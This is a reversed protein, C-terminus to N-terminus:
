SYYEDLWKTLDGVTPYDLFLSGNVKVDLELRFKEALVLSMLSDIGLNCFEAGEELDALDLASERAILDLAKTAVTERGSSPTAVGESSTSTSVSTISPPTDAVITTDIPEVSKSKVQAKETKTTQPEDFGSDSGDSETSWSAQKQKTVPTPLISSKKSKVTPAIQKIADKPAEPASFFHGLLLRPFCRFQIGRVMGIIASDEARLIYVDGLYASPDETTPIMKVYSRYRAGVILPEAFRMSKWGPTVCYKERTLM